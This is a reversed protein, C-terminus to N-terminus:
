PSLLVFSIKVLFFVCAVRATHSNCVSTDFRFRTLDVILLRTSATPHITNQLIIDSDTTTGISPVSAWFLM